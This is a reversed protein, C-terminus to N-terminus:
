LNSKPESYTLSALHRPLERTGHLVRAVRIRNEEPIYFVLYGGLIVRFRLNPFDENAYTTSGLDPHEAIAALTTSLSELWREVSSVGFNALGYAGAAEIDSEASPSILIPLPPHQSVIESYSRANGGDM